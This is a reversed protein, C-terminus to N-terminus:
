PAQIKDTYEPKSTANHPNDIFLRKGTLNNRMLVKIWAPKDFLKRPLTMTVTDDLYDIDHKFGDDPVKDMGKILKHEGNWGVAPGAKVWATRVMKKTRIKAMYGAPRKKRLNDFTMVVKITKAGHHVTATLVDADAKTGWLEWSSTGESWLWVDEASDTLAVQGARAPAHAAVPSAAVPVAVALAATAVLIPRRLM